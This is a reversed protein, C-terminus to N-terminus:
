LGIDRVVSVALTRSVPIYETLPPFEARITELAFNIRSAVLANLGSRRHHEIIIGVLRLSPPLDELDNQFCKWVGGGSMGHLVPSTELVEAESNVVRQQTYDIVIHSTPTVQCKRYTRNASPKGAFALRQSRLCLDDLRSIQLNQPFGTFLYDDNQNTVDNMEIFCCPLALYCDGIKDLASISLHMVAVDEGGEDARAGVLDGTLQEFRNNTECFIRQNKNQTFVHTATALFTESGVQLLVGSGLFEPVGSETSGIIPCVFDTLCKPPLIM